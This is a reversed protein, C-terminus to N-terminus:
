QKESILEVFMISNKMEKANDPMFRISDNRVAATHLTSPLKNQISNFEWIIITNKKKNWKIEEVVGYKSEM